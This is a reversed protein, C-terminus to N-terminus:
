TASDRIEVYVHKKFTILLVVVYTVRTISRFHFYKRSYHSISKVNLQTPNSTYDESQIEVLHEVDLTLRPVPSARLFTWHFRVFCCLVATLARRVVSLMVIRLVSRRCPVRCTVDYCYSYFLFLSWNLVKRRSTSTSTSTSCSAM